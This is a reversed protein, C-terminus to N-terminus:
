NAEKEEKIPVYGSEAVVKQGEATLLRDRIRAAPSEKPLDSLHAVVVETILPYTTNRITEESPMVNNVALLKVCPTYAESTEFSYHIVMYKEFYYFSYTIGYLSM